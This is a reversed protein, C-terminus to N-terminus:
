DVNTTTELDITDSKAPIEDVHTGGPPPSDWCEAIELVPREPFIARFHVRRAETTATEDCSNPRADTSAVTRSPVISAM